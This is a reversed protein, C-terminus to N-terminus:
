LSNYLRMYEAVTKETNFLRNAKEKGAQGYHYMTAPKDMMHELAQLLAEPQGPPILLGNQEHDILEPIGGVHTAIVPLEASMAEIVANPLGETHSPHIHLHSQRLFGPIDTCRGKFSIRDQLNNDRVYQEFRQRNNEKDTGAVDLRWSLDPRKDKLMKLASLLDDYGKYTFLNGTATLHFAPATTFDQEARETTFAETEIGNYILVQKESPAGEQTLDQLIARSNGVFRSVKMNHCLATEIQAMLPHNKFYYNLSLRSMVFHRTGPTLFHAFATYLYPRPLFAHIIDPQVRKIAQRIFFFPAIYAAAKDIINQAKSKDKNKDKDQANNQGTPTIVTIGAQELRPFLDGKHSYLVAAINFEEKKHLHPFIRVIDMEAGGTDLSGIIVMITKKKRKEETM